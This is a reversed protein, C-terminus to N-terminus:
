AIAASSQHETLTKVASDLTYLYEIVQENPTAAPAPKQVYWSWAIFIAALLMLIKRRTLPWIIHRATM